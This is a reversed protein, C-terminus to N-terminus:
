IGFTFACKDQEDSSVEYEIINTPYEQLYENNTKMKARKSKKKQGESKEIIHDIM